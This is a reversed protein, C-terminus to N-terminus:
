HLVRTAEPAGLQQRLRDLFVSVVKLSEDIKKLETVFQGVLVQAEHLAKDEVQPLARYAAAVCEMLQEWDNSSPQSQAVKDFLPVFQEAFVASVGYRGELVEVIKKHFPTMPEPLLLDSALDNEGAGLRPNAMSPPPNARDKRLDDPTPL